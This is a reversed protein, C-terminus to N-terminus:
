QGKTHIHWPLVIFLLDIFKLIQRYHYGTFMQLAALYVSQCNSLKWFSPPKISEGRKQTNNQENTRKHKKTEHQEKNIQKHM